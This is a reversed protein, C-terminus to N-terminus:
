AIATGDRLCEGLAIKHVSIGYFDGIQSASPFDDPACMSYICMGDVHNQWGRKLTEQAEEATAGLATFEYKGTNMTAVYM